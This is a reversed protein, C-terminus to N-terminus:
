FFEAIFDRMPMMFKAARLHGGGGYTKAIELIDHKLSRISISADLGVPYWVIVIDYIPLCEQMIAAKYNRPANVVLFESDSLTKLVGNNVFDRVADKRKAITIAGRKKADDLWLLNKYYKNFLWTFDPIKPNTIMKWEGTPKTSSPYSLGVFICSTDYDSCYTTDVANIIKLVEPLKKGKSNGFFEYALIAACKEINVWSGGHDYLWTSEEHHDIVVVENCKELIKDYLDKTCGLDLLFVTDVEISEEELNEIIKQNKESAAIEHISIKNYTNKIGRLTHLLAHIADQCGKHYYIKAYNQINDTIDLQDILSTTLSVSFVDNSSSNLSVPPTGSVLMENRFEQPNYDEDDEIDAWSISSM